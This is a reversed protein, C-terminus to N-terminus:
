VTASREEVRWGCRMSMDSSDSSSATLMHRFVCVAALFLASLLLSVATSIDSCHRNRTRPLPLHTSTSLLPLTTLLLPTFGTSLDLPSAKLAGCLLVNVPCKLDDPPGHNESPGFRRSLRIRFGRSKSQKEQVCLRRVLRLESM